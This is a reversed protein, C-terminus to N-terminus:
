ARLRDGAAINERTKNDCCFILLISQVLPSSNPRRKEARMHHIHKHKLQRVQADLVDGSDAVIKEM